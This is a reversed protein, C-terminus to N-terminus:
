DPIQFPIIKAGIVKQKFRKRLIERYRSLWKLNERTRRVWVECVLVEDEYVIGRHVWFGKKPHPDFTCGGFRDILERRVRAFEKRKIRKGKNDRLPLHIVYMVM